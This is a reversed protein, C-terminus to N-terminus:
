LVTRLVCQGVACASATPCLSGGSLREFHRLNETQCLYCIFEAYAKVHAENTDIQADFEAKVKFMEWFDDRDHVSLLRYAQEDGVIILKLEASIPKPRLGQPMLFGFQQAPDELLVERNRIVRKLGEWVGPNILVDRANLVLYGGNARHISGPKLMTHDSLYTGMMARREIAGFLNSWTPNSELLVPPETTGGNDVMVNIQFPIFPDPQLTGPVRPGRHPPANPEPQEEALFLPLHSLAYAKLDDLFTVVESFQSFAERKDEFVQNLRFEGVQQNLAQINKRTERELTRLEIM